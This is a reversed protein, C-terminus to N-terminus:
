KTYRITVMDNLIDNIICEFTEDKTGFFSDRSSYNIIEDAVNEVVSYVQEMETCHNITLFLKGLDLSYYFGQRYCYQRLLSIHALFYNIKM